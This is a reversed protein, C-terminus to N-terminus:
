ALMRTGDPLGVRVIGGAGRSDDGWFGYRALAARSSVALTAENELQVPYRFFAEQGLELLAAEDGQLAADEIAIPRADTGLPARPSAGGPADLEHLSVLEVPPNWEPLRSWDGSSGTDYSLLRLRSYGNDPNVLSDVLAARRFAADALY